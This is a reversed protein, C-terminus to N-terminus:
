PNQESVDNVDVWVVVLHDSVNPTCKCIEKWFPFCVESVVYYFKKELFASFTLVCALLLLACSFHRFTAHVASGFCAHFNFVLTFNPALVVIVHSGSPM